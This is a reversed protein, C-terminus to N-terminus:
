GRAPTEVMAVAPAAEPAVAAQPTITKPMVGFNAEVNTAVARLLTNYVAQQLGYVVPFAYAVNAWDSVGGTFVEYAVAIALSVIMAVTNKTRSTMAAHTFVATLLPSAAVVAATVINLLTNTDM